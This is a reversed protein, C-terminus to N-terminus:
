QFLKRIMVLNVPHSGRRAHMRSKDVRVFAILILHQRGTGEARSRPKPEGTTGARRGLVMHLRVPTQHLLRVQHAGDLLVGTLQIRQRSHGVTGRGNSKSRARMTRKLLGHVQDLMLPGPDKSIQSRTPGHSTTLQRAGRTVTPMEYPKRLATQRRQLERRWSTRISAPLIGKM